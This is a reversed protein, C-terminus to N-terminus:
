EATLVSRGALGYSPIFIVPTVPRVEACLSASSAKPAILMGAM